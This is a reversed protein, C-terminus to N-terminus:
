IIINTEATETPESPEETKKDIIGAAAYTNIIVEPDIGINILYNVLEQKKEYYRKNFFYLLFENRVKIKKYAEALEEELLEDTKYKKPIKKNENKYEEQKDKKYKEIRLLESVYAKIKASMWNNFVSCLHSYEPTESGYKGNFLNYPFDEGELSRQTQMKNFEVKMLVDIYQCTKKTLWSNYHRQLIDNNPLNTPDSLDKDKLNYMDINGVIENINYKNGDIIIFDKNLDIDNKEIPLVDDSIKCNSDEENDSHTEFDAETIKRRSRPENDESKNEESRNDETKIDNKKKCINEHNKLSAKSALKKNCFKCNNTKVGEKKDNVDEKTESKNDTIDEKPQADKLANKKELARREKKATLKDVQANLSNTIENKIENKIEANPENRLKNRMNLFNVLFARNHQYEEEDFESESDSCDKTIENNLTDTNHSM